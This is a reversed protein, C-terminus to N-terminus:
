VHMYPCVYAQVATHLRQVHWLRFWLWNGAGWLGSRNAWKVTVSCCQLQVGSTLWGDQQSCGGIVGCREIDGTCFVAWLRLSRHRRHWCWRSNYIKYTKYTASHSFYHSSFLIPKSNCCSSHSWSTCYVAEQLCVVWVAICLKIKDVDLKHM